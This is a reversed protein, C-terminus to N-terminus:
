GDDVSRVPKVDVVPTGDVAELQSVLVRLGHVELIEARHLGIPNPRAPSRTSFVGAMARAPDSRPRVSLVSRDALHLWTFVLVEQGPRLDRLGEAVSPEFVLWAPPAGEDPQKPAGDLDTLASEVHAIPSLEFPIM